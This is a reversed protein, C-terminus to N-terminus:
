GRWTAGGRQGEGFGVYVALAALAVAVLILLKGRVHLLHSRKNRATPAPKWFYNIKKTYKGIIKNLVQSYKSIEFKNIKNIIHGKVISIPRPKAHKSTYTYM